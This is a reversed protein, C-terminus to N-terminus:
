IICLFYITISVSLKPFYVTKSIATLNKCQWSTTFHLKLLTAKSKRFTCQFRPVQRLRCCSDQCHQQKWKIQGNTMNFRHKATWLETMRPDSVVDASLWLRTRRNWKMPEQWNPQHLLLNYSQGRGREQFAKIRNMSTSGWMLGGELVQKQDLGALNAM